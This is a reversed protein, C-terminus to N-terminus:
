CKIKNCVNIIEIATNKGINKITLLKDYQLSCIREPNDFITTDFNFFVLLANQGRFSFMKRFDTYKERERQTEYIQNIRNVSIKFM